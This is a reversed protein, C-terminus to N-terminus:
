SEKSRKLTDDFDVLVRFMEQFDPDADQLLYYIDRAGILVV